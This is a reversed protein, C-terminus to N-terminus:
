NAYDIGGIFTESKGITFLQIKTRAIPYKLVQYTIDQWYYKVTLSEIKELFNLTDFYKGEFVLRIPHIYYGTEKDIILPKASLSAMSILTLKQSKKLVQEILAAMQTASVFGQMKNALIQDTNAIDQQLQALKQEFELDPSILLKRQKLQNENNVRQLQTNTSSVLQTLQILQNSAPELLVLWSFVCILLWIALSVIIKERLTFNKVQQKIPELKM